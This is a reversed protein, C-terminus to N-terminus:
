DRSLGFNPHRRHHRLILVRAGTASPRFLLHYPYRRFNARRLQTGAIPHFRGPNEAIVAIVREFEQHFKAAVHPAGERTYHSIVSLLDRAVLRHFVLSPM